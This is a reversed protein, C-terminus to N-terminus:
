YNVCSNKSNNKGKLENVFWLFEFYDKYSFHISYYTEIGKEYYLNNKESEITTLYSYEDVINGSWEMIGMSDILLIIESVSLEEDESIFGEEEYEGNIASKETITYYTVSVLM